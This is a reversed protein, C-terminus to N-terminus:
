KTNNTQEKTWEWSYLLSEVQRLLQRKNYKPAYVWAEAVVIRKGDPSYFSHSVFPGGMFDGEVDWMGHTEAFSRGKYKLYRTEPNWHKGTIMYTGDFMGPVNAKMFENRKAIIRESEFDDGEVPYSYVFIGQTSYQRDLSVWAFDDTIKRLKYGSPAHLGGGFVPRLKAFVEANEYQLTNAIVRDREAQEIAEVIFSANAMFVSDAQGSTYASVQILCQPTAWKDRILKVCPTVVQPNIDFFVINRHIKFMDTFAGPAVNTATYRYEVVPLYPYEDELVSRVSEGLAGEWDAREIVCLVEGAKGSITPLMPAQSKCSVLASTILLAAIIGNLRM